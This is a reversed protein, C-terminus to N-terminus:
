LSLYSSYPDGSPPLMQTPSVQAPWRMCSTVRLRALRQRLPKPGELVGSAEQFILIDAYSGEQRTANTPYSESSKVEVGTIEQM